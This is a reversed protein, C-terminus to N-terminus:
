TRAGRIANRCCPWCSNGRAIQSSSVTFLPVVLPQEDLAFKEVQLPLKHPAKSCKSFGPHFHVCVSLCAWRRQETFRGKAAVRQPLVAHTRSFECCKWSRFPSFFVAKKRGPGDHRLLCCNALRSIIRGPTKFLNSREARAGVRRTKPRGAHCTIPRWGDCARSLRAARWM